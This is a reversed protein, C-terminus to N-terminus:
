KRVMAKWGTDNVVIKDARDALRRMQESDMPLPFCEEERYEAGKRASMAMAQKEPDAESPNHAPSMLAPRDAFGDDNYWLGRTPAAGYLGRLKSKPADAAHRLIQKLQPTMKFTAQM